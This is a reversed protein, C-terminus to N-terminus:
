CTDHPDHPRLSRHWAYYRQTPASSTTQPICTPVYVHPTLLRRTVDRPHCMMHLLADCTPAQVPADGGQRGGDVGVKMADEFPVTRPAAVGELTEASVDLLRGQLGALSGRMGDLCAALLAAQETLSSLYEQPARGRPITFPPRSSPSQLAVCGM